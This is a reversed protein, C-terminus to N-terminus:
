ALRDLLGVLKEVRQRIEEREQRLAKAERALAEAKKAEDGEAGRRGLAEALAKEAKEARAKAQALDARLSQGEAALDKLRQAAKHIRDELLKFSDEVPRGRM